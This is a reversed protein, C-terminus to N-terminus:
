TWELSGDPYVWVAGAPAVTWWWLYDIDKEPINPDYEDPWVQRFLDIQEEPSGDLFNGKSDALKLEGDKILEILFNLFEEKINPNDRIFGFFCEFEDFLSPLSLGKSNNLIQQKILNM